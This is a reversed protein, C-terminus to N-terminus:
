ASHTHAAYTNSIALKAPTKTTLAVSVNTGGEQEWLTFIHLRNSCFQLGLRLLKLHHPLRPSPPSRM